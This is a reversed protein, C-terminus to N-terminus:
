EGKVVIYKRYGDEEAVAAVGAKELAELYRPLMKAENDERRPWANTHVVRFDAGWKVVQYGDTNNTWGRVSTASEVSKDFGARRLISHLKQTTIM